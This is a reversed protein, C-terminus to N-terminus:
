DHLNLEIGHFARAEIHIASFSFDLICFGSEVYRVSTAYKFISERSQIVNSRTELVFGYGYNRNLM